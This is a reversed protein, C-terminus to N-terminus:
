KDLDVYDDPDVDGALRKVVNALKEDEDHDLTQVVGEQVKNRFGCKRFCNTVTSWLSRRM